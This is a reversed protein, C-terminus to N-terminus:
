ACMVHEWGRVWVAWCGCVGACGRVGMCWISSLGVYLRWSFSVCAILIVCMQLQTGVCGCVWVVGSAVFVACVM